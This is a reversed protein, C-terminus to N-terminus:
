HHCSTSISMRQLQHEGALPTPIINPRPLPYLSATLSKAYHLFHVIPLFIRWQVQIFCSFFFFFTPFHVFCIQKRLLLHIRLFAIRFHLFRPISKFVDPALKLSVGVAQQYNKVLKRGGRTSLFDITCIDVLLKARPMEVTWVKMRLSLLQWDVTSLVSKYTGYGILCLRIQM